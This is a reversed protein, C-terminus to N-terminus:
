EGILSNKAQRKPPSWHFKLFNNLESSLIYPFILFFRECWPITWSTVDLDSFKWNNNYKFGFLFNTFNKLSILNKITEHIIEVIKVFIKWGEAPQTWRVGCYLRDINNGEIQWLSVIKARRLNLVEQVFQM